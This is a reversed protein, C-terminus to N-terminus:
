SVGKLADWSGQLKRLLVIQGGHHAMHLFVHSLQSAWPVDNTTSVPSSFKSEDAAEILLRWETMISNVQEVEAQWAEATVEAAGAFTQDNDDAPYVYDNGKFRELYALHYYNLHAVIEWISNDSNEPKWAAQEPTLNNLTNKLAVFWHNEYYSAAFQEALIEKTTM